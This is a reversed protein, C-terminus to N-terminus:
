SSLPRNYPFNWGPNFNWNTLGLQLKIEILLVNVHFAFRIWVRKHNWVLTLVLETWMIKRKPQTEFRDIDQHAHTPMENRTTNVCYKIVRFSIENRDFYSIFHSIAWIFDMGRNLKLRVHANFAVDLLDGSIWKTKPYDHECSFRMGTQFKMETLIVLKFDMGNQSENRRLEHSRLYLASQVGFHSKWGFHFRMGTQTWKAEWTFRIGSKPTLVATISEQLRKGNTTCTSSQVTAHYHRISVM